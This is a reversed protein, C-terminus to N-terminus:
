GFEDLDKKHDTSYLEPVFLSQDRINDPDKLKTLHDRDLLM